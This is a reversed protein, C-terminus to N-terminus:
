TCRAWSASGPSRSRGTVGEFAIIPLDRGNWTVTGLMWDGSGERREPKSFRIVEAVCARPVILREDTLPILLSYLEDAAASM